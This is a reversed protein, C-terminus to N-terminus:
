KPSKEAVTAHKKRTAKSRFIRYRVLKSFITDYFQGFILRFNEDNEIAAKIHGQVSSNRAGKVTNVVTWLHSPFEQIEGRLYSQFAKEDRELDITASSRRSRKPPSNKITKLERRLKEIKMRIELERKDNPNM